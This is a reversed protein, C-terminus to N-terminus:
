FNFIKHRFTLLIKSMLLLVAKEFARVLFFHALAVHRLCVLILSYRFGSLLFAQVSSLFNLLYVRVRSPLPSYVTSAFIVSKYSKPFYSSPFLGCVTTTFIDFSNCFRSISIDRAFSFFYSLVRKTDFFSLGLSKRISLLSRIFLRVIISIPTDALFRLSLSM